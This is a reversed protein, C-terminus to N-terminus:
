GPINPHGLRSDGAVYMQCVHRADGRIRWAMAPLTATKSNLGTTEVLQEDTTGILRVDSFIILGRGDLVVLWKYEDGEGQGTLLYADAIGICNALNCDLNLLMESKLLDSIRTPFEIPLHRRFLGLVQPYRPWTKLLPVM